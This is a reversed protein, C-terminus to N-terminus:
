LISQQLTKRKKEEQLRKANLPISAAHIQIHYQTIVIIVLLMTYYKLPFSSGLLSFFTTVAADKAWILM